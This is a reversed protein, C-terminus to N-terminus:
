QDAIGKSQKRSRYERFLVYAFRLMAGFFAGVAALVLHRPKSTAYPVVSPELVEVVPSIQEAQLRSLEYQRSLEGYVSQLRLYEAQLRQERVRETNTYINRNADKFAGLEAEAKQLNAKAERAQEKLFAAKDGEKTLRYKTVFDRVYRVALSNVEAAIYPDPMESSITIVGTMKGMSVDIRKKLNKLVGQQLKSLALVSDSTPNVRPLPEPREEFDKTLYDFLIMEKGDMGKVPSSLAHILFPTSRIIEPYLDPRVAETRNRTNIGALSALESLNGMLNSQYEPLIKASAQYEKKMLFTLGYVAIGCFIGSFALGKWNGIFFSLIKDFSIEIIEDKVGSQNM